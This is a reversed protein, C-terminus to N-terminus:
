SQCFSPMGLAIFLCPDRTDRDSEQRLLPILLAAIHALRKPRQLAQRLLPFPVSISNTASIVPNIM